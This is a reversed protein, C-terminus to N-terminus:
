GDCQAPEKSPTPNKEFAEVDTAPIALGYHNRTDRAFVVGVVRGARDLLASGSNGPEVNNTIEMVSGVAGITSGRIYGVVRGPIVSLQDGLPYGAAWVETGKKPESAAWEAKTSGQPVTGVLLALDPGKSIARVTAVFDVGDWTSLELTSSGSAVHRNTVTVSGLSFSSGTALCSASRVRFAWGRAENLLRVATSARQSRPLSVATPVPRPGPGPTPPPTTQSALPSPTCGSASLLSAGGAVLVGTVRGFRLSAGM